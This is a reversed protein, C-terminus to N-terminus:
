SLPISVDTNRYPRATSVSAPLIHRLERREEAWTKLPACTKASQQDRLWQRRRMVEDHATEAHSLQQAREEEIQRSLHRIVFLLTLITVVVVFIGFATAFNRM